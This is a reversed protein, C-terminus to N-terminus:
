SDVKWGSEVLCGDHVLGEGVVVVRRDSVKGEGRLPFSGLLVLHKESHGSIRVVNRCRRGLRLLRVVHDGKSLPWRAVFLLWRAVALLWRAACM